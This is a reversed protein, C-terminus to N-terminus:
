AIWGEAHEAVPAPLHGNTHRAPPIPADKAAYYGDFKEKGFLTLPRLYKEMDGGKWMAVQRDILKKCGELTVGPLKLRACIVKFNTDVEQFRLGTAQNLHHILIRADAHLRDEVPTTIVEEFMPQQDSLSDSLSREANKPNHPNLPVEEQVQVQVQVNGVMLRSASHIATCTALDDSLSESLTDCLSANPSPNKGWRKANTAKAGLKNRERVEIRRAIEADARRNRWLGDAVTFFRALTPRMRLWAADSLRAIRALRKDDDALPLATKYYTLLLLFYAGHETTDLDATDAIYDGPYFAFWTTRSSDSM